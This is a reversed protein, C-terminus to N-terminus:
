LGVTAAVGKEDLTATAADDAAVLETPLFSLAAQINTLIQNISGPSTSWPLRAPSTTPTAAVSARRTPAMSIPAATGVGVSGM